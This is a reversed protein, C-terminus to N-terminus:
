HQPPPPTPRLGPSGLLKSALWDTSIALELNMLLVQRLSLIPVTFIRMVDRKGGCYVCTHAVACTRMHERVCVCMCVHVYVCASVCAYLFSPFSSPPLFSPFFFLFFCFSFSFPVRM